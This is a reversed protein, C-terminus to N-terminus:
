SAEERLHALASALSRHARFSRSKVTGLPVALQDAIQQHTFGDVHQLRVITREDPPLADVALRVQAAEWVREESPPLVVLAGDSANADDLATTPRRAERRQIDIAARRAITVLWPAPERTPDLDEAHRWAQVFTHQVAEEALGRDSLVRLAVSMVLGSYTRYLTRVADADGTAFRAVLSTDGAGDVM